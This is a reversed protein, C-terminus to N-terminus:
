GDASRIHNHIREFSAPFYQSMVKFIRFNRVSKPLFSAGDAGYTQERTFFTFYVPMKMSIGFRTFGFVTRVGSFITATASLTHPAGDVDVDGDNEVISCKPSMM